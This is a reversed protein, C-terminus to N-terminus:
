FWMKLSCCRQNEMRFRDNSNIETELNSIASTSQPHGSKQVTSYPRLEDSTKSILFNVCVNVNEVNFCM